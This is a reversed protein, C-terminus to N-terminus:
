LVVNVEPELFSKKYNMFYETCYYLIPQSRTLKASDENNFKVFYKEIVVDM